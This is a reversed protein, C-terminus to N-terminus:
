SRLKSGATLGTVFAALFSEITPQSAEQAPSPKASKHRKAAALGFAILGAGSYVAGLIVATNLVTTLTVLFMWAAATWFGVGVCLLVSGAFGFAASKATQAAEARANAILSSIM